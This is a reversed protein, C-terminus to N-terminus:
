QFQWLPKGAASPNPLEDNDGNKKGRGYAGQRLRHKPSVDGEEHRTVTNGYADIHGMGGEPTRGPSRGGPMGEMARPGGRPELGSHRPSYASKAFPSSFNWTSHEVLFAAALFSLVLLIKRAM